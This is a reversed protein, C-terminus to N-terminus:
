QQESLERKQKRRLNRAHEKAQNTFPLHPITREQVEEHFRRQIVNRQVAFIWLIDLLQEKEKRHTDPALQWAAWFIAEATSLCGQGANHWRWYYSEPPPSDLHVKPLHYLSDLLRSCYQWRCDLVVLRLNQAEVQELSSLPISGSCPFLVYTKIGNQKGEDQSYDPIGENQEQDWLRTTTMKHKPPRGDVDEDDDDDDDLTAHRVLAAIQVGTSAARRDDLVIDLHFPLRLTKNRISDPWDEPPILLRCCDFCYIHRSANCECCKTRQWEEKNASRQQLMVNVRELYDGLLQHKESEIEDDNVVEQRSPVSSLM